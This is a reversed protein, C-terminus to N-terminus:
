NSPEQAHVAISSQHQCSSRAVVSRLQHATYTDTSLIYDTTDILRVIVCLKIASTTWPCCLCLRYHAMAYFVGNVIQRATAEAYLEKARTASAVFKSYQQYYACFFCYSVAQQHRLDFHKQSLFPPFSRFSLPCFPLSGLTDDGARLTSLLSINFFSTRVPCIQPDGVTCYSEDEPRLCLEAREEPSAPGGTAAFSTPM